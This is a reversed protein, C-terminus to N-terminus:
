HGMGLGGDVPVVAGTVYGTSEDTLWRVAAAVDEPRGVRPVPVRALLEEVHCAPLGATMDTRILGPTVTNVTIGRRGLERALSRSLGILGAKAAAYNAQGANGSLAVESGIFVIRGWRGRVMGRVARRACRHAGTLNTDIVTTFREEKMVAYPGDATIGANAVLIEVPGLDREVASFAADVEATDTVDCRVAYLGEPAAGRCTVAVRHGAAALERAIALGIGRSGGTVLATRKRTM